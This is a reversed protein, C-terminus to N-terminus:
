LRMYPKVLKAAKKEAAKYMDALRINKGGKQLSLNSAEMFAFMELTEEKSVPAVDTEFFQLIADLLVKYGMYGGAPIQKNELFVTGGYLSPTKTLARFTGLRGDKWVGSVIDGQDSHVRNVYECGMGMVTYLIEVGHIGYYGFDPHTLNGKDDLASEPHHPSYCDAGKVVGYKGARVDANVTSFRLASSSFVPRNYKDALKYIAMSEALTSGLPKDIYCKKGAKFVQAAQELHLRGDNTEVFVCDVKKLLEDISNVVEVGYKQVDKVYGEIRKTASPITKTGYPYAAVVEYKNVFYDDTGKKNLEESFRVSHSTDLGIIGIRVVDTQAGAVISALLMMIFSFYKCM